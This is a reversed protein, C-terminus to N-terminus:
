KNRASGTAIGAAPCLVVRVGLGADNDNTQCVPVASGAACVIETFAPDLVAANVVTMAGRPVSHSVSVGLAPASGAAILTSTLGLPSGM